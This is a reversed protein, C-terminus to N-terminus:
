YPFVGPAVKEGSFKICGPQYSLTIVIIINIIVFYKLQIAVKM